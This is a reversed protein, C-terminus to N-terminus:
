ISGCFRSNPKEPPALFIEADIDCDGIYLALTYGCILFSEFECKVYKVELPDVEGTAADM